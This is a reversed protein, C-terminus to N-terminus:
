IRVVKGFEDRTQDLAAILQSNRVFLLLIHTGSYFRALPLNVKETAPSTPSPHMGHLSVRCYPLQEAYRDAQASGYRHHTYRYIKALDDEAANTLHYDAM